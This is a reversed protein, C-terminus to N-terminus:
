AIDRLQTTFNQLATTLVEITQRNAYEVAEGLAHRADQLAQQHMAALQQSGPTAALLGSAQETAVRIQELADCPAFTPM